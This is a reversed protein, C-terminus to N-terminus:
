PLLPVSKAWEMAGWRLLEEGSLWRSGGGPYRRVNLVNESLARQTEDFVGSWLKQGGPAAYITAEFGASAPRLTGAAQGSREVFRWVEGMVITDVGFREHLVAAVTRPVLRQDAGTELGLARAVDDATVVAVGRAALSESVHRGALATVVSPGPSIAPDRETVLPSSARFPVVAVSRIPGRYEGLAPHPQGRVTPACAVLSAALVLAAALWVACARGFSLRASLIRAKLM